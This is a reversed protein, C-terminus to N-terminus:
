KKTIAQTGNLVPKLWLAPDDPMPRLDQINYLQPSDLYQTTFGKAVSYVDGTAPRHLRELGQLEDARKEALMDDAPLRKEWALAM